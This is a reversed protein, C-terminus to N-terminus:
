VVTFLRHRCKNSMPKSKYGRGSRAEHVALVHELRKVRWIIGVHPFKHLHGRYLAKMLDNHETKMVGIETKLVGVETKLVGVETKLMGVEIKVKTKVETKKRKKDGGTSMM